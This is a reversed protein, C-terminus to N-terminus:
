RHAQMLMEQRRSLFALKLIKGLDLSLNKAPHTSFLLYLSYWFYFPHKTYRTILGLGEDVNPLYEAVDPM